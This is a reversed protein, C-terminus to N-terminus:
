YGGYQSKTREKSYDFAKVLDDCINQYVREVAKKSIENVFHRFAAENPFIAYQLESYEYPSVEWIDFRPPLPVRFTM